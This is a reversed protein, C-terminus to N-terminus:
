KLLDGVLEAAERVAQRAAGQVQPDRAIPPLHGELKKFDASAQKWAQQANRAAAAQQGWSGPSFIRGPPTNVYTDYAATFAHFSAASTRLDNAIPQLAPPLNSAPILSTARTFLDATERVLKSTGPAARELDQMAADIKRINPQATTLAKTVETAALAADRPNSNAAVDLATKATEVGVRVLADLANGPQTRPRQQQQQQPPM